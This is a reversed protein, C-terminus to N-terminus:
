VPEYLLMAGTHVCATLPLYPMVFLVAIITRASDAMAIHPMPVRLISPATLDLCGMSMRWIVPNNRALFLQELLKAVYRGGCM